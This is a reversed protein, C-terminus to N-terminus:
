FDQNLQSLDPNSDDVTQVVTSVASVGRTFEIALPTNPHSRIQSIFNEVAGEGLM